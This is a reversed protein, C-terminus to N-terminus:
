GGALGERQTHASLSCWPYRNRIDGIRISPLAPIPANKERTVTKYHLRKNGNFVPFVKLFFFFLWVRRGRLCLAPPPAPQFSCRELQGPGPALRATARQAAAPPLRWKEREPFRSDWPFLPSSAMQHATQSRPVPGALAPTWPARQPLPAWPLHPWPSTKWRWRTPAGPM